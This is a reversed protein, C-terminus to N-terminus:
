AEVSASPQAIGPAWLTARGKGGRKSAYMAQDARALLTAADLGDRPRYLSVGVSSSLHRPQDGVVYPAHAVRLLKAAVVAANSEPEAFAEAVVVFEDGALRAVMDVARVTDRIRCAFERLVEDGAEHGFQDNVQKFGDLDIFYVGLAKGSRDARQLARPLSELLLRRNPLGTLSDHLAQLALSVELQKRESIDRLFADFYRRDGRWRSRMSMEAPIEVGDRTRTAIEVRRGIWQTQGSTVFDRLDADFAARREDPLLLESFRRGYAQSRSWGFITRAARNWEVVRGDEDLMIFADNAQELIARHNAVSEALEATREEVRAELEGNVRELDANAGALAQEREALADLMGNFSDVLRGVEHVRSPPARMDRRGERVADAVELLRYLRRTLVHALAAALVLGLAIAGAAFLLGDRLSARLAREIGQVDPTVRLAGLDRAGTRLPIVLEGGVAGRRWVSRDDAGLLEVGAIDADDLLLSAARIAADRDGVALLPAIREAARGAVHAAHATNAERLTAHQRAVAHAVFAAMLVAQLLAVGLALQRRLTASGRAGGSM